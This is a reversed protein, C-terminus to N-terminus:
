AVRGRVMGPRRVKVGRAVLRKRVRAVSIGYDTALSRLPILDETYRRVLEDDPIADMHERPHHYLEHNIRGGISGFPPADCFRCQREGRHKGRGERVADIVADRYYPREPAPLSRLADEVSEGPTRYLTLLHTLTSPDITPPTM